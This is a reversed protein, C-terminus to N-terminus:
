RNLDKIPLEGKDSKEMVSQELRIRPQDYNWIKIFFSQSIMCFLKIPQLPKLRCENKLMITIHAKKHLGNIIKSM